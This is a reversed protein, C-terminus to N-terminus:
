HLMPRRWIILKAPEHASTLAPMHKGTDQKAPNIGHSVAAALQNQILLTRLLLEPKRSRAIVPQINPHPLCRWLGYQRCVLLMERAASYVIEPRTQQAPPKPAM